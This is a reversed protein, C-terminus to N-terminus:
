PSGYHGGICARLFQAVNLKASVLVREPFGEHKGDLLDRWLALSGGRYRVLRGKVNPHTNRSYFFAQETAAIQDVGPREPFPANGKCVRGRAWVNWYPTNYLRTHGDPRDGGRLAMVHLDRLTWAFVLGPHPVAAHREGLASGAAFFVARRQPPCWWALYGPGVGLIDAPLLDAQGAGLLAYLADSLLDRRLPAGAGLRWGNKEAKLEHATAYAYAGQSASREGYLILAYHPLLAVAQTCDIVKM